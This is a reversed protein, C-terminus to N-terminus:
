PGAYSRCRHRLQQRDRTVPFDRVNFVGASRQEGPSEQGGSDSLVPLVRYIGYDIAYRRKLKLNIFCHILQEKAFSNFADSERDM